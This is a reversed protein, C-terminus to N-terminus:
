RWHVFLTGNIRGRQRMVDHDPSTEIGINLGRQRGQRHAKPHRHHQAVDLLQALSFDSVHEAHFNRRDSSTNMAAPGHQTSFQLVTFWENTM